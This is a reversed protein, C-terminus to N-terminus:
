PSEHTDEDRDISEEYFHNLHIWSAELSGLGVSVKNNKLKDRARKKWEPTNYGYNNQIGLDIEIDKKM